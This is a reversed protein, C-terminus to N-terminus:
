FEIVDFFLVIVIVFCVSPFFSMDLRSYLFVIMDTVSDQFSLTTNTIFYYNLKFFLQKLFQFKYFIFCTHFEIM